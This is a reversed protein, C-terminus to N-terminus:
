SFIRNGPLVVFMVRTESFPGSDVTISPPLLPLTTVKAAPMLAVKSPNVIVLPEVDSFPPPMRIPLEEEGVMALQMMVSLSAKAPPPMEQPSEESGNMVFEMM